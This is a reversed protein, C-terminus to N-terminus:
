NVDQYIRWFRFSLPRVILYMSKILKGGRSWLLAFESDLTLLIDYLWIVSGALLMYQSTRVNMLGSVLAASVGSAMGDPSDSMLGLLHPPSSLPLTLTPNMTRYDLRGLYRLSPRLGPVESVLTQM